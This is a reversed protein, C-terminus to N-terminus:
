QWGSRDFIRVANSQNEGLIEARLTDEKFVGLSTVPGISTGTISYEHSANAFINQTAADTLFEIFKIANEKNPSYRTVGAGSINVHTGRGNQNPFIVNLSNAVAQDSTKPSDILRAIYYTNAITVGCEKSAVARLQATDNGQPKRGFNKVVNNAWQEAADAGVHEIISALLSLNYINSSSRMCVKGRLSPHGLDEYDNIETNLDNDRHTIIVRARKALGFWHGDTDRLHLPIRNNLVKSNVAQLVNNTKASWLRGADVTVLVDAPSFESESKLRELLGEGSGEILNVKIGTEETFKEYLTLDTDYHRASYINVNNAALSYSLTSFILYFTFIIRIFLM